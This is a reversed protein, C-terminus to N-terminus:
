TGGTGGSPLPHCVLLGEQIQAEVTARTPDPKGGGTGETSEPNVPHQGGVLFERELQDRLQEAPLRTWPLAMTMSRGEKAEVRLM